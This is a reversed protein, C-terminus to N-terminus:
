VQRNGSSRCNAALWDTTALFREGVRRLSFVEHSSQRPCVRDRQPEVEKNKSLWLM